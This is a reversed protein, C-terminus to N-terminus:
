KKKRKTINYGHPLRVGLSKLASKVQNASVPKKLTTTKKVKKM